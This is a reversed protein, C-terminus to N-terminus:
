QFITQSLSYLCSSVVLLDEMRNKSPSIVDDVKTLWIHNPFLLPTSISKQKM